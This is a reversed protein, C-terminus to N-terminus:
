HPTVTTLLAGPLDDAIAVASDSVVAHAVRV